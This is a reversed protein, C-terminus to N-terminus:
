DRENNFRIPYSSDRLAIMPQIFLGKQHYYVRNFDLITLIGNIVQTSHKIWVIRQTIRNDSQTYTITLCPLPIKGWCTKITWSQFKFWYRM